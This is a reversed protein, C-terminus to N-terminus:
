DISRQIFRRWHKWTCSPQIRCRAFVFMESHGSSCDPQKLGKRTPHHYIWFFSWFRSLSFLVSKLEAHSHDFRDEFSPCLASPLCGLCALNKPIPSSHTKSNMSKLALIEDCTLFQVASGYAEKHYVHLISTRHKQITKRGNEIIWIEMFSLESRQRSCLWALLLKQVM